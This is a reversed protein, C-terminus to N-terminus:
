SEGFGDEILGVLAGLAQEADDGEAMIRLRTGCTAVLMLLEMPSRADAKRDEVQLTVRSLFRSATDVVRMIPRFHLGERNRIVAEREHVVARGDNAGQRIWATVDATATM